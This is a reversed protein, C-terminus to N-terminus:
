RSSLYDITSKGVNERRSSSSIPFAIKPANRLNINPTGRESSWLGMVFTEGSGRPFLHTTRTPRLEPGCFTRESQLDASLEVHQCKQRRSEKPVRPRNQM